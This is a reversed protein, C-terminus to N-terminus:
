EKLFSEVRAAYNRLSAMNKSTKDSFFFYLNIPEDIETLIKKSGDSLSYVNDETLDLRFPSLLQNNLFVLAFFLLAIFLMSLWITFKSGM